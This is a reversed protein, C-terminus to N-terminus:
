ISLWKWAPVAMVSVGSEKFAAEQNYTIIFNEKTRFYAASAILPDLERKLTDADSIDMCAQVCMAPCGREDICIFDLEQRRKRTLYYHVRHFQRKLHLYITNEFARSDTGDWSLSNKNALAWDIAYLKKINREQEKSSDSLIPVIFLLWADQAWELYERISDRSTQYGCGKLYRYASQLTHPKAINSLLHGYLQMCQRPKSINHRQIIDKLIMTDYYERLLAEKIRNDCAVIAPYGGWRLYEDFLRRLEAQGKTSGKRHRFGKFDMFEKFSLPLISTSIAKGRLETAIDQRLLKSSSGTVVVQWNTNRSLDIVYNEWGEIKHIEDLIFLLPTRTDANPTIKLFTNQILGLENAKMGSLIPNDFDLHCVRSIDDIRGGSIMEDGAQLVRYSKGVRRAGIVTSVMRPAMLLPEHRPVYTPFGLERFDEIKREIEGDLM